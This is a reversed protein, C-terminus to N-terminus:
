KATTIKDEAGSVANLRVVVEESDMCWTGNIERYGLLSCYQKPRAITRSACVGDSDAVGLTAYQFLWIKELTPESEVEVV